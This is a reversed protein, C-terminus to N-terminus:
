HTDYASGRYTTQRAEAIARLRAKYRGLNWRWLISLIDMLNPYPLATYIKCCILPANEGSDAYIASDSLKGYVLIIKPEWLVYFMCNTYTTNDQTKFPFRPHWVIYERKDIVNMRVGGLM